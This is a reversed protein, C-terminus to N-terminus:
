THESAGCSKRQGKSLWEKPDAILYGGSVRPLINSIVANSAELDLLAQNRIYM